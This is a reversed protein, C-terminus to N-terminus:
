YFDDDDDYGGGDHDNDYDDDYDGGGADGADGDDGYNSQDYGDDGNVYDQYSPYHYDAWDTGGNPPNGSQDIWTPGGSPLSYVFVFQRLRVSKSKLYTWVYSVLRSIRNPYYFEEVFLICVIAVTWLFSVSYLASLTCVVGIIVCILKHWWILRGLPLIGHRICYEIYQLAFM